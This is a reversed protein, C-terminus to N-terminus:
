RAKVPKALREEVAKELAPKKQGAPLGRLHALEAELTATVEAHRDLKELIDARKDLMRAKRAGWAKQIARDIAALANEGEGLALYAIALRHPPNYDDPLQREREALFVAAERARELFVLTELRAGDFTSAVAPDPARRAAADLVGLRERAAEVAGARNGLAEEAAWVIRLADGRDDPSMPARPDRVVERLKKAVLERLAKARPSGKPVHDACDLANGGFDGLTSSLGLDEGALASLGLEVCADFKKGHELSSVLALLADSRRPWSRYNSRVGRTAFFNACRTSARRERGAGM